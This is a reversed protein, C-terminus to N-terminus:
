IAGNRGMSALSAHPNIIAVLNPFAAKWAYLCRVMIAGGCVASERNDGEPEHKCTRMENIWSQVHAM